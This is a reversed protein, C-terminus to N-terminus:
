APADGGYAQRHVRDLGDVNGRILADESVHLLQALRNVAPGEHFLEVPVDRAAGEETLEILCAVGRLDIFTLQSLDVVVKQPRSRWVRHVRQRLQPVTFFDLEGTLVVRAEAGLVVEVGLLFDDVTNM